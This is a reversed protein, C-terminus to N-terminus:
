INCEAAIIAAEDLAASFDTLFREGAEEDLGYGLFDLMYFFLAAAVRARYEPPASKLTIGLGGGVARYYHMPVDGTPLGILSLRQHVNMAILAYAAGARASIEAAPDRMGASGITALLMDAAALAEPTPAFPERTEM